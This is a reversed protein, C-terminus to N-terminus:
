LNIIEMIVPRPEHYSMRTISLQLKKRIVVNVFEFFHATTGRNQEKKIIFQEYVTNLAEATLYFLNGRISNVIHSEDCNKLEMFNLVFDIIVAKSIHSDIVVIESTCRSGTAFFEFLQKHRTATCNSVAISQEFSVCRVHDKIWNFPTQVNRQFGFGLIGCQLRGRNSRYITAALLKLVDAQYILGLYRIYIFPDTLLRVFHEFLPWTEHNLEKAHAFFVYTSEQTPDEYDGYARLECNPRSGAAQRKLSSQNSYNNRVVWDNYEEPSLEKNFIKM